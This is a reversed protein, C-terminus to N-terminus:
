GHIEGFFEYEYSNTYSNMPNTNDHLVLKQLLGDDNYYYNIKVTATKHLSLQESREQYIMLNQSNFKQIILNGESNIVEERTGDEDNYKIEANDEVSSIDDSIVKILRGKEDYKNETSLKLGKKEIDKRILKGKDDYSYVTSEINNNESSEIRTGALQGNENYDFYVAEFPKTSDEDDFKEISVTRDQKNFTTVTKNNGGDLFFERDTKKSGGYETKVMTKINEVPYSDERAITRGKEDYKIIQEHIVSGEIDFDTITREKIDDSLKDLSLLYSDGRGFSRRTTIKKIDM